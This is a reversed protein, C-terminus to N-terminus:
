VTHWSIEMNNQKWASMIGETDTTYETPDDYSCAVCINKIIGYVLDDKGEVMKYLMYQEFNLRSVDEGVFKGRKNSLDIRERVFKPYVGDWEVVCVDRGDVKFSFRYTTTKDNFVGDTFEGDDFKYGLEKPEDDGWAYDTRSNNKVIIGEGYQMKARHNPNKFFNDMQENTEFVRPAFIELYTNTKDKIDNDIIAVANRCARTLEYSKLCMPNFNNIKFYRQCIINGGTTLVFEFREKYDRPENSKKKLEAM